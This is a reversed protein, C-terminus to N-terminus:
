ALQRGLERTRGPGLEALLGRWWVPVAVTAAAAQGAAVGPAGGVWAGALAGLMYLPATGVRARLTRRSAAVARLGSVAGSAAANFAVLLTLPLLVPRAVEWTTGLLAHGLSAPLAALGLGWALAVATMAASAAVFARLALATSRALLRAGEPVVLARVALDLTTLPGILTQAGKLAALGDLGVITGATLITLQYGGTAVMFDAAYPLALDRQSVCWGRLARVRPRAHFQAIGVLAAAGGAAGWALVLEPASPEGLVLLVAVTGLQCVAWVGDNLCAKFPAGEAFAAFRWVDQLLLGPLVIALSALTSAAAGGFARAGALVLVSGVVGVGLACGAADRLARDRAEDSETTFRVVFPESTVARSAGLVLLYVFVSLSYAGFEEIGVSRAVLVTVLVNTVSSLAQDV